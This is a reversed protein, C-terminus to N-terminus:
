DVKRKGFQITAALYLLLDTGWLLWFTFYSMWSEFFCLVVPVMCNGLVLLSFPSKKRRNHIEVFAFVCAWIFMFLGSGLAGFDYYADTILNGTNLADNVQWFKLNSIVEKLKPFRLVATFAQLQRLGYSYDSQHLVAENCNDHSVTLYGYLFALRPPLSFSAQQNQPANTEDQPYCQSPATTETQATEQPETPETQVLQSDVPNENPMSQAPVSPEVAVNPAEEIQNDNPATSEMQAESNDSVTEKPICLGPETAQTEQQSLTIEKPQFVYALYENSLNRATSGIEYTGFAILMCMVFTVFKRRSLTVISVMLSLLAIMQTGRSVALIPMILVEYVICALLVVKKWRSLPQKKLTYYCLGSGATSAVTFINFRTYFDYYAMYDDTVFFPVFGKIAINAIFSFLGILTTIVCITFLRNNQVRLGNSPHKIYRRIATVIRDYGCEEMIMFALLFSGYTLGLVFWTEIEWRRQYGLLKLNALGITGLWFASFLAKLSIVNGRDVIFAFYFYLGVASGVLLLSGLWHNAGSLGCACLFALCGWTLAITEYGWKSFNHRKIKSEEENVIQM